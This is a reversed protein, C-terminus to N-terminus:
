VARAQEEEVLGEGAQIAVAGGGQRAREGRGLLVAADDQDDGVVELGDGAEAVVDDDEAAALDDEVLGAVLGEGVFLEGGAQGSPRPGARDSGSRRTCWVWMTFPM